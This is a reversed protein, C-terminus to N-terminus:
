KCYYGAMKVNGRPISSGTPLTTLMECRGALSEIEIGVKYGKQFWQKLADEALSGYLGSYNEWYCTKSPTPAPKVYPNRISELWAHRLDNRYKNAAIYDTKERCGSGVNYMCDIYEKSHIESTSGPSFTSNPDQYCISYVAESLSLGFYTEFATSYPPKYWQGSFIKQLFQPNNLLNQILEAQAQSKTSDPYLTPSLRSLRALLEDRTPPVYNKPASKNPVSCGLSMVDILNQGKESFQPPAPPTMPVECTLCSLLQTSSDDACRGSQQVPKPPEPQPEPQPTPTPAPEPQPAPEPTPAPVPTPPTPTPEPDPTPSPLPVPNPDTPDTPDSPIPNSFTTNDTAVKRFQTVPNTCSLFFGTLTIAVLSQLLIKTSM